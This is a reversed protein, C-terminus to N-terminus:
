LLISALGLFIFFGVIDATATIFVTASTAPDKGLSRLIIPTLSGWLGALSLNIMLSIWLILGLLPNQNVFTAFLALLCGTIAGNVAGALIERRFIPLSERVTVQKLALGRVMVALAQTGGNGGMGAVLPIYAALIVFESITEHFLGVVLSALSLTFLNLTLWRYRHNIKSFTSSYIDEEDHVGAFSHLSAGPNKELFALVDDGHIVGLVSRDDDLVVVKGHRNKRFSELVENTPTKYSIGDIWTVFKKIKDKPTATILNHSHLEGVLYGAKTVLITPFLGFHQEHTKIKNRLQNFSSEAEILLYNLSMLGAASDSDFKLLFNVKTRMEENLSDALKTRRPQPLLQLIEAASDPDQYHLIANIDTDSFSRIIAQQISKPLQTFIRGQTQHTEEKFRRVPNNSKSVQSIVLQIEDSM